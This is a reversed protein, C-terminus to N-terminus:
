RVRRSNGETERKEEKREQKTMKLEQELFWRQMFYDLISVFLLGALVSFSLGLVMYGLAHQKPHLTSLYLAGIGGIMAVKLLALGFRYFRHKKGGRKKKKWVWIWGVQLMHSAVAVLLLAVLIMGVPFLMPTFAERLGVDFSSFIHTMVQKLRGDLLKASGWLLLIGGGVLVVSAIEQSKAVQGKERAKRRKRATPQFDKEEM